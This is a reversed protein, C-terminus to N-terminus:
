SRRQGNVVRDVGKVQISSVLLVVLGAIASVAPPYPRVLNVFFIGWDWLDSLLDGVLCRLEFADLGQAHLLLLLEGLENAQVVEDVLILVLLVCVVEFLCHSQTRPLLFPDVLVVFISMLLHKEPWMVALFDPSSTHILNLSEIGVTM